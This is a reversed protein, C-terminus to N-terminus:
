AVLQFNVTEIGSSTMRTKLQGLGELLVISGPDVWGRVSILALFRGPPASQRFYTPAEVDRFGVPRWPKNCPYAEGTKERLKIVTIVGTSKSNETRHSDVRSSEPIHCRTTQPAAVFTKTFCAEEINLTSYPSYARGFLPSRGVLSCPTVDWFVATTVSSQSRVSCYVLELVTRGLAIIDEPKLVLPRSYIICRFLAYTCVDV